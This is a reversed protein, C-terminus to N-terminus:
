LKQIYFPLNQAKMCRCIPLTFPQVLFRNSILIKQNVYVNLGNTTSYKTTSLQNPHTKPYTFSSTIQLLINPPLFNIANLYFPLNLNRFHTSQFDIIM